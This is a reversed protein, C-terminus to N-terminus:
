NVMTGNKLHVRLFLKLYTYLVSVHITDVESSYKWVFCDHCRIKSQCKFGMFIYTIQILGGNHYSTMGIICLLWSNDHCKSSKIV